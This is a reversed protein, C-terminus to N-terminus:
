IEIYGSHIETTSFTGLFTDTGLPINWKLLSRQEHTSSLEAATITTWSTNKDLIGCMTLVYSVFASCTFVDTQRQIKQKFLACCWDRPRTDYGHRYVNKHIDCLIKEDIGIGKRMYIQVTGPYQETYFKLPTLQVGFKIDNDQPDRTGHYSSEWIFTGKCQPAWPPNVVVIASHSYKSRTCCKICCDLFGMCCETPLESFLLVDGTQLNEM